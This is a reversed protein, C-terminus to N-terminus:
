NGRSGTKGEVYNKLGEVIAQALKSRYSDDCLQKRDASCDIYGCELLISPVHSLRLVALGPRPRTHRDKMGTRSIVASHICSALQKSNPQGPHYYTEIGSLKDAVGIANCHISIFIDAEYNDAVAPRSPLDLARDDERTLIVKAGVAELAAKIQKAIALNIAKEQVGTSHDVAGAQFGGHGPDIVITKESLKGGTAVQMELCVIIDNGDLYTSFVVYKPIDLVVRATTDQGGVRIGSLLPHDTAIEDSPIEVKANQVDVAIRMPDFLMKSSFGAHGTTCIRVMVRSEGDPEVKVANITVPEAKADPVAAPAQQVPAQQPSTIESSKLSAYGISVKIEKNPAKTVVKYPLNRNLDVAIRATYENFQGVRMQTVEPGDVAFLKSATAVKVGPLDLSVRWPDQWLRTTSVVAPLTFKATLTGGAFEISQLKSLIRVTSTGNDWIYEGDLAKTADEVRVMDAGNHKTLGIEVTKDQLVLSVKNAGVVYNAGLQRLLDTPAYAAGDEVVSRPSLVAERTGVIVCAYRPAAFLSSSCFLALAVILTGTIYRMM